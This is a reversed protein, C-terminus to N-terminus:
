ENLKKSIVQDIDEDKYNELYYKIIETTPSNPYKNIFRNLEKVGENIKGNKLAETTQSSTLVFIYDSRYSYYIDNAKKELKSDPYKELFKEWNIVKDAIIEPHEELSSFYDIYDIDESCLKIFDRYDDSVYNKFINYYFDKKETLMFGEEIEVVELGYNDLFKNQKNLKEKDIDGEGIYFANDLMIYDNENMKELIENNSELYDEYFKNAEEKNLTKLKNIVEEKNKNFEKLLTNTQESFLNGKKRNELSGLYFYKEIYEDIMKSLDESDNNKPKDLNVEELYYGLLETTPSDPYKKIFRNYEEASEKYDYIGGPVGLIYDRRYSNCINNVKDNLKSNPYKELFNEWTVIRDGLEELPICLGSDAVYHEENENSTIKLYKQYDDTVYDKFTKYYFDPVERIIYSGRIFYWLELDYRNLLKNAIKMEEDTFNEAIDKNYIGNIDGSLFKEHEINLNELIIDNTESYEEYLEDAEEKNLTKLKELVENKNKSFNELSDKNFLQIIKNEKEISLIKKYGFIGGIIFIVIIFIFVLIKKM